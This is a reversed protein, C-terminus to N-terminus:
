TKQNRRQAWRLLWGAVGKAKAVSDRLANLEAEVRSRALAAEVAQGRAVQRAEELEALRGALFADAGREEVERLRRQAEALDRRLQEVEAAEPTTSKAHARPKARGPGKPPAKPPRRGM